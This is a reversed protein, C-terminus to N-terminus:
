RPFVAGNKIMESRIEEGSIESPSINKQVSLAAAIGAAEGLARVTPQIRLSSQALFSASICRGAVLLGDVKQPVLCLYPIDYYPIGDKSALDLEENILKKSHIDVPYNSCAIFGEHKRQGLVDEDTLTYMGKIRRTERVGVQNAMDSIYSNEFGPFYKKYFNLQRFMAKKAYVQAYTLDSPNTGDSVNPIEPCNFSLSDAKSPIGFSQWYQGDEYTIDGADMAHRFLEELPWNRGWVVALHYEPYGLRYHYKNKGECLKTIFQIFREMDIGSVVYRVSMRQNIGTQPDGSEFPVGAKQAVDGDGTCDIVCKSLIVGRGSKNEVILGKVVENEKIVDCIYTYYLLKVDSKTAMQELVYKLLHPDFCGETNSAVIFGGMNQMQRNIEDSIHSCMPNGKIETSMLPSVLAETASGGLAGFQEVLLVRAGKKAAAIAAIEGATGGGAVLVDVEDIIPIKKEPEVYYRLM